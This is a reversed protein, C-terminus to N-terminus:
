FTLKEFKEALRLVSREHTYQALKDNDIWALDISEHSVLPVAGKPAELLFRVDYHAACPGPIPHIDIDFIGPILFTFNNMGSEEEAEKLAVKKIDPDGDAHGGLQFWSKLKKHHTLLAATHEHNVIWTSGTIHRKHTREFCDPSSNILEIFSVLFPLEEPLMLSSKSYADLLELLPTRHM